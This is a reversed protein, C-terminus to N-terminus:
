EWYPGTPTAGIKGSTGLKKAVGPNGPIDFTVRADGAWSSLDTKDRKLNMSSAWLFTYDPATSPLYVAVISSSPKIAEDKGGATLTGIVQGSGYLGPDYDVPSGPRSKLGVKIGSAFFYWSGMFDVKISCVKTDRSAAQAYINFLSTDGQTNVSDSLLLNGSKTPSDNSLRGLDQNTGTMDYNKLPQGQDGMARFRFTMLQYYYDGSLDKSLEYVIGFRVGNWTVSPGSTYHADVLGPAMGFPDTLDGPAGDCYRYLNLDAEIPDRSIFQGLTSDYM